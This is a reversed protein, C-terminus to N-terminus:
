IKKCNCFHIFSSTFSPLPWLSIARDAPVTVYYDIDLKTNRWEYVFYYEFEIIKQIKEKNVWIRHWKKIFFFITYSDRLLIVIILGIFCDDNKFVCSFQIHLVYLPM